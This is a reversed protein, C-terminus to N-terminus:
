CGFWHSGASDEADVLKLYWKILDYDALIAGHNWDLRTTRLTFIHRPLHNAAHHVILKEFIFSLVISALAKM